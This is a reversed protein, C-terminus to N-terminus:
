GSQGSAEEGTLRKSVAGVRARCLCEAPGPAPQPRKVTAVDSCEAAARARTMAINNLEEPVIGPELLGASFISVLDYDGLPQGFRLAHM